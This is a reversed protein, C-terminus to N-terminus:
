VIADGYFGWVWLRMRVVLWVLGGYGGCGGTERCRPADRVDGRLVLAVVVVMVSGDSAGRNCGSGSCRRGLEM